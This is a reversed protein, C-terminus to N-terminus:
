RGTTLAKHLLSNQINAQFFWPLTSSPLSVAVTTDRKILFFHNNEFLHHFYKYYLLKQLPFHNQYFM